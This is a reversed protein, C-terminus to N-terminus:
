HRRRSNSIANLLEEMSIGEKILMYFGAASLLFLPFSVTISMILDGFGLDEEEQTRSRFFIRM